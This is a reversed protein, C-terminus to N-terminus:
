PPVISSLNSQSYTWQTDVQNFGLQNMREMWIDAAKALVMHIQDKRCILNDKIAGTEPDTILDNIDAYLYGAENCKNQIVKNFTLNISKRTFYDYKMWKARKAVLNTAEGTSRPINIGLVMINSEHKIEDIFSFYRSVSKQINEEITTNYKESMQFILFGCDVEGFHLFIWDWNQSSVKEIITKRAQTISNPNMLGYASAAKISLFNVGKIHKFVEAHSDGVALIKM